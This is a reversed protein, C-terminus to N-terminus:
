TVEETSQLVRYRAAPIRRLALQRTPADSYAARTIQWRSSSGATLGMAEDTLEIVDGERLWWYRGTDVSVAATEQPSHRWLAVRGVRAATDDDWVERADVEDRVRVDGVLRVVTERQRM